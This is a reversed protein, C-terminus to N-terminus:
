AGPKRMVAQENCTCGLEWAIGLADQGKVKRVQWVVGDITITDGDKRPNAISAVPIKAVMEELIYRGQGGLNDGQLIVAPIETVVEATGLERAPQTYTVTQALGDTDFWAAQADTAIDDRLTM